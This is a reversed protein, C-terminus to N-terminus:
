IAESPLHHFSVKQYEMPPLTGALKLRRINPLANVLNSLVIDDVPYHLSFTHLHAMPIVLPTSYTRSGDHLYELRSAITPPLSLTYFHGPVNIEYAALAKLNPLADEPIVVPHPLTPGWLFLTQLTPHRSLFQAFVTRNQEAAGEPGHFKMKGKFSLNRLSPWHAVQLLQQISSVPNTSRHLLLDVLGPNDETLFPVLATEIFQSSYGDLSM